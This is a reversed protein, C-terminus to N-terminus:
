NPCAARIGGVAIGLQNRGSQQRGNESMSLQDVFVYNWVIRYTVGDIQTWKGSVTGNQATGDERVVDRPAIWCRIGCAELRACAADAVIKDEHGYSIFVDYAM